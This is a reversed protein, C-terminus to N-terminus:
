SGSPSEFTLNQIELITKAEEGVLFTRQGSGRVPADEGGRWDTARGLRIREDPDASTGPYLAPFYAEVDPGDRVVLHARRWLLDRPRGPERFEISEVRDIPVWYYKGNMTLVEFVCSTLDDLDRFDQFAAGDCTGSPKPREREVQELLRLAEPVDGERVRVSAELLLRVAGDPVGLFEPVRGEAFFDQRAQEGRILQRFLVILPMAQADHHGLADLQNDGRELAGGFCLLEALLLRRGSDTPHDRVGELAASTAEGLRGAEFLEHPNV